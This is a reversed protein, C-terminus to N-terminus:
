KIYSIIAKVYKFFKPHTRKIRNLNAFKSTRPIDSDDICLDSYDLIFDYRIAGALYLVQCAHAIARNMNYGGFVHTNIKQVGSKLREFSQTTRYHAGNSIISICAEITDDLSSLFDFRGDRYKIQVNAYNQYAVKVVELNSIYEFLIAVDHMQKIIELDRDATYLIGTTNPAFASLKDAVIYDIKPVNIMVHPKSTILLNSDLPIRKCEIYEADEFVVDLIINSVGNSIRSDFEFKFHKKEIGNRKVRVQQVSKKFPFLYGAKEIYDNINVDSGVMIDIDTSFRRPEKLLLILCTGGKFIFELGVESLAQLLGFAFLM